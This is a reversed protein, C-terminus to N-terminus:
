NGKDSIFKVRMLRISEEDYDGGLEQIAGEIDDEECESFYEEIDAQQDEDLIM